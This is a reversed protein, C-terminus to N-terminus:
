SALAASEYDAPRRNSESLHSKIFMLTKFDYEDKICYVQEFIWKYIECWLMVALLDSTNKTSDHLMQEATEGEEAVNAM